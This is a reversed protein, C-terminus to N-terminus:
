EIEAVIFVGETAAEKWFAVNHTILVSTDPFLGILRHITDSQFKMFEEDNYLTEPVFIFYDGDQTGAMITEGKCLEEEIKYARYSNTAIESVIHLLEIQVAKILEEQVHKRTAYLEAIREAATMESFDKQIPLKIGLISETLSRGQTNVGTLVDRAAMNNRGTLVKGQEVSKLWLVSQEIREKIVEAQEETLDKREIVTRGDIIGCLVWGSDEKQLTIKYKQM